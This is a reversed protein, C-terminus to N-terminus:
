SVILLAGDVSVLERHGNNLARKGHAAARALRVIWPYILAVLAIAAITVTIHVAKKGDYFIEAL